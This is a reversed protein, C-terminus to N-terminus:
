LSLLSLQASAPTDVYFTTGNTRHRTVGLEGQMVAAFQGAVYLGLGSSSPRQSIPQASRGLREELKRFVDASLQPGYDRVSMRVRNGTCQQAGLVIPQNEGGYALANDCLGLMISRLLDRNAVALLSRRPIKVRLEQGMAKSLPTLEHAVEECVRGVHVPELEFLGDELRAHKTLMDVLRLSRESTLTMRELLQQVANDDLRTGPAEERLMLSLQRLLGLPAKLEHAAVAISPVECLVTQKPTDNGKSGM